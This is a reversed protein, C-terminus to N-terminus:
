EKLDMGMYLECSFHGTNGMAKPIYQFGYKEYLLVADSLKKSTELYCYTFGKEKAYEICRKMLGYGLGKGRYEGSLFMRQLECVTNAEGPLPAIGGGGAIEGDVEVIFYCANDATFSSSLSKLVPDTYVTGDVAMDYERLSKKIIRELVPDDAATIERYKVM